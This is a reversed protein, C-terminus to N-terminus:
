GQGSDVLAKLSDRNSCSRQGKVMTKQRRSTGGARGHWWLVMCSPTGGITQVGRRPHMRCRGAKARPAMPHPADRAPEAELMAVCRSGEM